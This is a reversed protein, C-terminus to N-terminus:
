ANKCLINSQTTNSSRDTNHVNSFEVFHLSVDNSGCENKSYSFPSNTPSSLDSVAHTKFVRFYVLSLVHKSALFISLVEHYIFVVPKIAIQLQAKINRRFAGSVM